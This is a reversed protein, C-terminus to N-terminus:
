NEHPQQRLDHILDPSLFYLTDVLRRPWVLLDSVEATEPASRTYVLNELSTPFRAYYPSILQTSCHQLLSCLDDMTYELTIYHPSTMHITRQPSLTRFFALIPNWEPLTHPDKIGFLEEITERLATEQITEEAERRGGLGNLLKVPVGKRNYDRGHVGILVHTKTGFLCGAGMFEM